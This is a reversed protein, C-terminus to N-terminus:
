HFRCKRYRVAPVAFASSFCLARGFSVRNVEPLTSFNSREDSDRTRSPSRVICVAPFRRICRGRSRTSEMQPDVSIVSSVFRSFQRLDPFSVIGFLLLVSASVSRLLRDSCLRHLPHPFRTFFFFENQSFRSHKIVCDNRRNSKNRTNTNNNTNNYCHAPLM